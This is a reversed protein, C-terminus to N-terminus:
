RHPGGAIAANRLYDLVTQMGTNGQQADTARLLQGAKDYRMVARPLGFATLPNFSLDPPMEKVRGLVGEGAAQAQEPTMPGDAPTKPQCLIRHKVTRGEKLLVTRAWLSIPLGHFKAAGEMIEYMEADTTIVLKTM